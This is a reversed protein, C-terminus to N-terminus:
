ITQYKRLSEIDADTKVCSKIIDTLDNYDDHQLKGFYLAAAFRMVWIMEDKSDDNFWFWYVNDEYHESRKHCLSCLLHLNELSEDGGNCSAKIHAREVATNINSTFGCKFCTNDNVLSPIKNQWYNFIKNRTPMVGRKRMIRLNLVRNVEV